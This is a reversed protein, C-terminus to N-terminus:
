SYNAGRNFEFESNGHDKSYFEYGTIRSSCFVFYYFTEIGKGGISLSFAIEIIPLKDLTLAAPVNSKMSLGLIFSM